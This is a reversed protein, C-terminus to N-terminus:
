ATLPQRGPIWWRQQERQFAIFGLNLDGAFDRPLDFARGNLNGARVTPFVTV